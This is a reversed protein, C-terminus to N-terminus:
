ACIENIPRLKAGFFGRVIFTVGFSANAAGAGCGQSDTAAQLSCRGGWYCGTCSCNAREKCALVMTTVWPIWFYRRVHV